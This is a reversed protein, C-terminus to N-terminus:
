GAGGSASCWCRASPRPPWRSPWGSWWASRCGAPPWRWCSRCSPRWWRPGGSTASRGACSTRCSSARPRSWCGSSTSLFAAFAGAVLLAELLAGTLGGVMARPLALVVADTQGTLLLQPVYVRGLAGYLAPALYFTGLLALVFLTTRRASAGDPNTYFRVLVHPLGLTGLFTALVLAYTAYLPHELGGAGSLPRAWDDGAAAEIRDVHPRGGRGPLRLDRGRAAGDPQWSASVTPTGVTVAELVQVRVPDDLRLTTTERFV